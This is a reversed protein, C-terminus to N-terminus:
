TETLAADRANDQNAPESHLPGWVALAAMKASHAAIVHLLMEDAVELAAESAAETQCPAEMANRANVFVNIAQELMTHTADVAKNSAKALTAYNNQM